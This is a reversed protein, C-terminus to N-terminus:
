GPTTGHKGGSGNTGLAELVQDIKRNITEYRDDAIQKETTILMRLALLQAGVDSQEALQELADEITEGAVRLQESVRSM